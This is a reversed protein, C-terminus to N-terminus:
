GRIDVDGVRTRRPVSRRVLDETFRAEDPRRLQNAYGGKVVWSGRPVADLLRALFRDIAVVLHIRRVAVGTRRAEGNM